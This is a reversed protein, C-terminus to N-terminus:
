LKTRLTSILGNLMKQIEVLQTLIEDGKVGYIDSALMIQTQLEGLSGRAISLFQIFEKTNSRQQGEAINSPISVAARQIQSILGYKEDSPLEATLAYVLKTTEFSKRWVALDRFSRVQMNKGSVM